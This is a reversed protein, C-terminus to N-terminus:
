AVARPGSQATQARAATYRARGEAVLDELFEREQALIRMTRDRAELAVSVASVILGRTSGVASRLAWGTVVGAVYSVFMRM